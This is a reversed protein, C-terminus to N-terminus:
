WNPCLNRQNKIVFLRVQDLDGLLMQEKALKEAEKTQLTNKGGYQNDIYYSTIDSEYLIMKDRQITPIKGRPNVNNIWDPKTTTNINVTEHSYFNFKIM